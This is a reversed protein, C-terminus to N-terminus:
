PSVGEEAESADEKIVVKGRGHVTNAPQRDTTQRRLALQCAAKPSSRM